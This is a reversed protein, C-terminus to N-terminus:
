KKVMFLCKKDNPNSNKELSNKEIQLNDKNEINNQITQILNNIVSKNSNLLLELIFKKELNILVKKKKTKLVM